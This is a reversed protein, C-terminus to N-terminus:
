AFRDGIFGPRNLAYLQSAVNTLQYSPTRGTPDYVIDAPCSFAKDEDFLFKNAQVIAAWVLRGESYLKGLHNIQEILPDNNLMWSPPVIQLYALEKEQMHALTEALNINLVQSLKIEEQLEKSM